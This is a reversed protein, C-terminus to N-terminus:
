IVSVELFYTKWFKDEESLKSDDKWYAELGDEVKEDVEEEECIRVESTTTFLDGDSSDIEKNAQLSFEAKAEALEKYYSKPQPKNVDFDDDDRHGRLLREREYDKLLQKKPKKQKVETSPLKLNLFNNM